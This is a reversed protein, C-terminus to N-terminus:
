RPVGRKLNAAITLGSHYRAFRKEAESGAKKPNAKALVKM